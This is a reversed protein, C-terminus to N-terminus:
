MQALLLYLSTYQFSSVFPPPLYLPLPSYHFPNFLGFYFISVAPICQYVGKFMSKLVLLSLCSQLIPVTHPLAQPLPLHISSIFTLSYPPHVEYVQVFYFL